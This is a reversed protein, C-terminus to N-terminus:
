EGAVAADIGEATDPPLLGLRKERGGRAPGALPQGPLRNRAIELMALDHISNGFVADPNPLGVRKLSAAKGEDTPVDVLNNTIVGEPVAGRRRHRPGPIGLARVGESIVWKNTSSVAWLEVGAKALRDLLSAIEPFIHPHIFEEVYRRCTSKARRTVPVSTRHRFPPADLGAGRSLTFPQFLDRIVQLVPERPPHHKPRNSPKQQSEAISNANAMVPNMSSQEHRLRASLSARWDLNLQTDGTTADLYDTRM